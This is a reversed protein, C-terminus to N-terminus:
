SYRMLQKKISLEKEKFDPSQHNFLTVQAGLPALAHALNSGLFGLGGTILIKKGGYEKLRNFKM